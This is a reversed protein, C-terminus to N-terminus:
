MGGGLIDKGEVSRKNLTEDFDTPLNRLFRYRVSLRCVFTKVDKMKEQRKECPKAFVHSQSFSLVHALFLEVDFPDLTIFTSKSQSQIETM